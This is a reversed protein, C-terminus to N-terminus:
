PIYACAYTPKCTCYNCSRLQPAHYASNLKRAVIENACQCEIEDGAKEVVIVWVGRTLLWYGYM